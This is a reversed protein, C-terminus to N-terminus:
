PIKSAHLAKLMAAVSQRKTKPVEALVNHYFHVTCRQYRAHPFVEALAGTMGSDKDGTFMRVGSLGRSRLWSLFEAWCEKSETYGEACGIIERFANLMYVM